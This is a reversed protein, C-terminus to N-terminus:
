AEQVTKKFRQIKICIKICFSLAKSQNRAKGVYLVRSDSDLMRYVGPTNDLARLTSQILAYGVPDTRTDTRRTDTM